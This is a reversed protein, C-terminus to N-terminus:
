GSRRKSKQYGEEDSPDGWLICSALEPMDADKIFEDERPLKNIDMLTIPYPPIFGHLCIISKGIVHSYPLARFFECIIEYTEEDYKQLCEKKFGYMEHVEPDEHNGRSPYIMNPTACLMLMLATLVEISQSGRDVYDGNFILQRKNYYEM